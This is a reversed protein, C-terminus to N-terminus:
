YWFHLQLVFANNEKMPEEINFRFQPRVEIFAFPFLELGIILHSIEDKAITIDRDFRDYRLITEIGISILYSIELMLASSTVGFGVYENAYDFEGMISINSLGVGAFAGYLITNLKNGLNKIKTSAFSGGVFFGLKDISSNVELRSTITPDSSLINNFRSKGLSASFFGWDSINIGLELGTEKYLPNYILGQVTGTSFLLGYDGGKTYSTHDDIRIGFYPTFSGFKIYSKNPLIKATAYAQWILNPFDYMTIIDIDNTISTNLYLSGTMEQFDARNKEQSYILQTRYDFGFSVNDTIKPSIIFNKEKSSAMSIVNRGFYFGNENRIIGGTPNVHCSICKDKQQLAFRPLSYVFSTAVLLIILVYNHKM